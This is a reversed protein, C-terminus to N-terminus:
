FLAQQLLFKDPFFNSNEWEPYFRFDSSKIIENDHLSYFDSYIAKLDTREKNLLNIHKQMVIEKYFDIWMKSFYKSHDHSNAARLRLFNKGRLMPIFLKKSNDTFYVKGIGSVQWENFFPISLSNAVDYEDSTAKKINNAEFYNKLIHLTKFFLTCNDHGLFFFETNTVDYAANAVSRSNNSFYIKGDHSLYIKPKPEGWINGFLPSTLEKEYFHKLMNPTCFLDTVSEAATAISVLSDISNLDLWNPSWVLIKSKSLENKYKQLLPLAQKYYEMDGLKDGTQSVDAKVCVIEDITINNKIFYKLVVYSDYGGSFFLRLKPYKDKLQLIRHQMLTDFSDIPEKWWEISKVADDFFYYTIKDYDSPKKLDKVIDLTRFYIKDHLRFHPSHM